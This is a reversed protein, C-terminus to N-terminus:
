AVTSLYDKVEQKSLNKFVGKEIINGEKTTVPEKSAVGIEITDASMQGEYGEKLTLIATHVADELGMTESYRKKLFDIANEMNRGIATAKWPFFTGSPDLQFLKPGQADDYGAILLSVGFPRVGGSQTFDQIVASLDQTLVSVPPDEMYVKKYEQALKRAKDLLVRADPGMGAYVLGINDCVPAIKTITDDEILPSATKKETVIVIGNKAKIGICTIGHSVAKLAYEIQSLKGTPSFTTLSFNYRDGM